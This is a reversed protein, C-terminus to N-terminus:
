VQCSVWPAPPTLTVCADPSLVAVTTSQGPSNGNAFFSDEYATQEFGSIAPPVSGIDAGGGANGGNGSGIDSVTISWGTAALGTDFLPVVGTTVTGGSAPYSINNYIGSTTNETRGFDLLILTAQASVCVLVVAM